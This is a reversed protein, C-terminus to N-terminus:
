PRLLHIPTTPFRGLGIVIAIRLQFYKQIAKQLVAIQSDPSIIDRQVIMKGQHSSFAITHIAKYVPLFM